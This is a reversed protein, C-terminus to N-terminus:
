IKNKRSKYKQEDFDPAFPDFDDDFTEKKDVGKADEKQEHKKNYAKYWGIFEQPSMPKVLEVSDRFGLKNSQSDNM